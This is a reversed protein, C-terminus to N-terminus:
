NVCYIRICVAVQVQLWMMFDFEQELKDYSWFYVM